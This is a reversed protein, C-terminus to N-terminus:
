NEEEKCFHNALRGLHIEIGCLSEKILFLNEENSDTHSGMDSLSTAIKGLASDKEDSGNIAHFIKYLVDHSEEANRALFAMSEAIKEFLEKNDPVDIHGVNEAISELAKVLEDNKDHNRARKSM